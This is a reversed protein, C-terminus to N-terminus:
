NSSSKSTLGIEMCDQDYSVTYGLHEALFRVPVYTVDDKVIPAVDMEKSQENVMCNKDGANMTIKQDAISMVLTAPPNWAVKGELSEIFERAPVMIYGNEIFPASDFMIFYEYDNVNISIRDETETVDPELVESDISNESTLVPALFNVANVFEQKIDLNAVIDLKESDMNGTIKINMNCSSANKNATSDAKLKIALNGDTDPSKLGLDMNVTSSVNDTQIDSKSLVKCDLGIGEGNYGFDWDLSSTSPGVEMICKRINLNKLETVLSVDNSIKLDKAMQAKDEGEPGFPALQEALKNVFKNDQFHKAFDIISLKDLNMKVTTGNTTFCRDPVAEFLTKLLEMAAEQQNPQNLITQLEAFSFGELKTYVYQINAPPMAMTSDFAAMAKLSDVPIVMTDGIIYFQLSINQPASGEVNAAVQFFAKDNVIDLEYKVNAKASKVGLTDLPEGAVSANIEGSLPRDLTPQIQKAQLAKMNDLFMVKSSTSALVSFPLALTFIVALVLAVTKQKM